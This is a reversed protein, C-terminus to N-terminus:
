FQSIVNAIRYTRTGSSNKWDLRIGVDWITPTANNPVGQLTITMMARQSPNAPDSLGPVARPSTAPNAQAMQGNVFPAINNWAQAKIEEMKGTVSQRALELDRMAEKATMTHLIFTFLAFLAIAMIGLAIMLEVMTLGANRAKPRM